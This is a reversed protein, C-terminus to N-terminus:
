KRFAGVYSAAILVKVEPTLQFGDREVFDYERLFKVLRHEFYRKHNEDLRQYFRVNEVLFQKKNTPLRKEVVYLHVFIPKNFIYAYFSELVNFFATLFGTFYLTNKLIYFSKM